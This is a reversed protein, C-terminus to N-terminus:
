TDSLLKQNLEGLNHYRTNKASINIRVELFIANRARNNNVNTIFNHTQM